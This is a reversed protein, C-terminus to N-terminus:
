HLDPGEGADCEAIETQSARLAGRPGAGPAWCRWVPARCPRLAPPGRLKESAATGLAEGGLGRSAEAYGMRFWRDLGRSATGRSAALQQLSGSGALSAPFGWHHKRSNLDPLSPTLIGDPIGM